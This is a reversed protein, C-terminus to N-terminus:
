RVLVELEDPIRCIIGWKRRRRLSQRQNRITVVGLRLVHPAQQLKRFWSTKDSDICDMWSLRRGDATAITVCTWPCWHVHPFTTRQNIWCSSCMWTGGQDYGDFRLSDKLSWSCGVEHQFFLRVRAQRVVTLLRGKGVSWWICPRRRILLRSDSSDEPRPLLFLVRCSASRHEKCAVRAEMLRNDWIRELLFYQLLIVVCGLTSVQSILLRHIADTIM